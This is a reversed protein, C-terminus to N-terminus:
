PLAEVACQDLFYIGNYYVPDDDGWEPQTCSEDESADFFKETGQTWCFYSTIQNAPSAALYTAPSSCPLMVSVVDDDACSSIGICLGSEANVAQFAPIGSGVPVMDFRQSVDLPNCDAIVMPTVGDICQGPCHFPAIYLDEEFRFLLTSPEASKGKGNNGSCSPTTTSKGKGKGNGSKKMMRLERRKNVRIGGAGGSSAGEQQQAAEATLRRMHKNLEEAESPTADRFKIAEAISFTLALTLIASVFKM